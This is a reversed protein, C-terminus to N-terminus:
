RWRRLRASGTRRGGTNASKNTPDSDETARFPVRPGTKRKVVVVSRREGTQSWSSAQRRLCADGVLCFFVRTPTPRGGVASASASPSFSPCPFVWPRAAGPFLYRASWITAPARQPHPAPHGRLVPSVVSVAGGAGLKGVGVSRVRSCPSPPRSTTTAKRPLLRVRSRPRPRSAALPLRLPALAFFFFFFVQLPM